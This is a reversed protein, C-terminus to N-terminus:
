TMGARASNNLAPQLLMTMWPWLLATTLVSWLMSLTPANDSFWLGFLWCVVFAMLLYLSLYFSQQLLSFHRTRTDNRYFLYLVLVYSLAHLGLVTGLLLDVLLGVVFASLLGISAKYIRAWVLLFLLVWQPRFSQAWHPLPLISLVGAVVLLMMFRLVSPRPM